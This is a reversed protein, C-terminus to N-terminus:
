RIPRRDLQNTPAVGADVLPEAALQRRIAADIAHRAAGLADELHVRARVLHRSEAVQAAERGDAASFELPQAAREVWLRAVREAHRGVAVLHEADVARAADIQEAVGVRQLAV